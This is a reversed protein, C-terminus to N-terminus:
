LGAQLVLELTNDPIHTTVLLSKRAAPFGCTATVEMGKQGAGSWYIGFVNFVEPPAHRSVAPIVSTGLNLRVVRVQVANRIGQFEDILWVSIPCKSVQMQEVRSCTYLVDGFAYPSGETPVMKSLMLNPDAARKSGLLARDHSVM